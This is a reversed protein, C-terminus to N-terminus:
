SNTNSGKGLTRSSNIPEIKVFGNPKSSWDLIAPVPETSDEIVENKDFSGTKEMSLLYM